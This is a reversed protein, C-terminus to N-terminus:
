EEKRLVQRRYDELTDIIVRVTKRVPNNKATTDAAEHLFEILDDVHVYVAGQDSIYRLQAM